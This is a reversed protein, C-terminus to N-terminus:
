ICITKANELGEDIADIKMEWTEQCAFFEVTVTYSNMSELSGKEDTM